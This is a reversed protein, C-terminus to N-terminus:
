RNLVRTFLGYLRKYTVRTCPRGRAFRFPRKIAVVVVVSSCGAVAVVVVGFTHGDGLSFHIPFTRSRRHGFRIFGVCNSPSPRPFFYSCLIRMTRPRHHTSVYGSTQVRTATATTRNTTVYLPFTNLTARARYDCVRTLIYM